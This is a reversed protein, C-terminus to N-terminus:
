NKSVFIPSHCALVHVNHTSADEGFASFFRYSNTVVKISSSPAVSFDPFFFLFVLGPTIQEALYQQDGEGRREPYWDTDQFVIM